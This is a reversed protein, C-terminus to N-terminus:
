LGDTRRLWRELERRYDDPTDMDRLIEDSAVPLLLTDDALERVLDRLGASRSDLALVAGRLSADLGVPHGRRGDFTPVVVRRATTRFADAVARITEPRVFPQDVLSLLWGDAGAEDAAEVGRQVSSLMGDAHRENVVGSVGERAFLSSLADVLREAGDGLVIIVRAVGAQHLNEVCQELVSMQGFPLLAKPEGMRRSAGASLLIGAIRERSAM